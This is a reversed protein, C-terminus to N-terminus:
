MVACCGAPSASKSLKDVLERLEENEQILRTMEDGAPAASADFAKENPAAGFNHKSATDGGTGTISGMAIKVAEDLKLLKKLQTDKDGQNTVKIDDSALLKYAEAATKDEWDKELANGVHEAGKEVAKITSRRVRPPASKLGDETFQQFSLWAEFMTWSHVPDPMSLM